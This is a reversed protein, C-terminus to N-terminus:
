AAHSRVIRSDTKIMEETEKESLKRQAYEIGLANNHRDKEHEEATNQSDGSEHADTVRLAFNAGFTQTLWYSWFIHRPTDYSVTTDAAFFEGAKKEARTRVDLLRPTKLLNKSAITIDDDTVKPEILQAVRRLDNKDGELNTTGGREKASSFYVKTPMGDAVFMANGALRTDSLKEEKFVWNKFDV